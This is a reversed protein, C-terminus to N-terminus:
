AIPALEAIRVANAMVPFALTTGPISPLVSADVAHVRRWGFPRGLSDSDLTDVPRSRMPFSSGCHTGSGPNSFRIIRPQIYLGGARLVRALRRAALGAELRAQKSVNLAISLADSDDACRRLTLELSSSHDSHMGCWALMVRRLIPAWLRRTYPSKLGPLRSATAVMDNMPIMQVHVWHDSREQVRAEIFAAALTISPQEAASPAARARVAPMVFKQSEKLLVPRDYHGASRLLIATTNLPGAAIFIAKFTLEAPGGNLDLVDVRALDPDERISRVFLGGRYVVEGRRVMGDLMPVTSFISGRVCGTFCQGCGNCPLIGGEADATHVALRAPGYLVGDTALRKEARALDKLLAAGQPGPDLQGLAEKYAPFTAAMSGGGGCLPLQAAVKRFYPEMAGRSIPWDAMDCADPPLVAAGWINSFGGRAFTPYPTRGARNTVVHAFPRDAAYIYDSGFHMKKPLEDDSMTANASILDHYEAPWSGPARDRLQAVVAQRAADLTEGVDLITVNLGRAALARAAFVGALGSGIVAVNM